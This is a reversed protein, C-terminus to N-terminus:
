EQFPDVLSACYFAGHRAKAPPVFLYEESNIFDDGIKGDQLHVAGRDLLTTSLPIHLLVVM